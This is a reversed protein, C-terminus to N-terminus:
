AEFFVAILIREIHFNTQSRCVFGSIGTYNLLASLMVSFVVEVYSFKSDIRGTVNQTVTSTWNSDRTNPVTTMQIPTNQNSKLSKSNMQVKM